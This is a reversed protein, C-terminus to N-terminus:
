THVVRFCLAESVGTPPRPMFVINAYAYVKLYHCDKHQYYPTIWGLLPKIIQTETQRDTWGPRDLPAPRRGCALWHPRAAAMVAALMCHRRLAAPNHRRGVCERVVLRYM